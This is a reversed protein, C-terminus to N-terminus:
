PQDSSSFRHVTGDDRTSEATITAAPERRIIRITDTAGPRTVDVVIDTGERRTSVSPL